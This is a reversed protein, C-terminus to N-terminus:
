LQLIYIIKIVHFSTAIPCLIVINKPRIDDLPNITLLVTYSSITLELIPHGYLGKRHARGRAQQKVILVIRASNRKVDDNYKKLEIGHCSSFQPM